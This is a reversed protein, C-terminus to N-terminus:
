FTIVSVPLASLGPYQNQYYLLPAKSAGKNTSESNRLPPAAYQLCTLHPM